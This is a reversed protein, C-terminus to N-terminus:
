KAINIRTAEGQAQHFKCYMTFFGDRPATNTAPLKITVTKGAEVDMDITFGPITINHVAKTDNLVTFTIDRNLPITLDKPEYFPFSNTIVLDANQPGSGGLVGDRDKSDSGCGVLSVLLVMMLGGVM